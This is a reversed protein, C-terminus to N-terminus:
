IRWKKKKGHSNTVLCFAAYGLKQQSYCSPIWKRVGTQRLKKLSVFLFSQTFPLSIYTIGQLLLSAVSDHVNGWLKLSKNNNGFAFSAILGVIFAAGFSVGSIWFYSLSYLDALPTSSISFFACHYQNNSCNWGCLVVESLWNFRLKGDCRKLIKM